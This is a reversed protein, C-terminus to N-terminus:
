SPRCWLRAQKGDERTRKQSWGLGTLIAGIRRQHGSHTRDVDFGLCDTLLELTGVTQKGLLYGSVKDTWVDDQVYQSNNGELLEAEAQDLWWIHGDDYLTKAEAWLQDRVAALGQIDIAGVKVPWFRRSGTPDNLFGGDENNTTGAFVVNRAHRVDFRGYAPRFKDVVATLFSKVRTAEKGKISDLEAFEYLWVGQIATMADKQNTLDIATDSFWQRGVLEALATSKGAGQGGVLVLTTDVKAGTPLAAYARAVMSILFKRGMVRTLETDEVGLYDTLWHNARATKDWQWRVGDLYDRLPHYENDRSIVGVASAMMDVSVHLEYNNGVWVVLRALDADTIQEQRYEVTNSFANYRLQGAQRPDSELIICLNGLTKRPKGVTQVYRVGHADQAMRDPARDLEQWVATVPGPAAAVELSEGPTDPM